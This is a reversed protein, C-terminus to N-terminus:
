ITAETASMGPSHVAERAPRHASKSMWRGLRAATLRWMLGALKDRARARDAHNLAEKPGVIVHRTTGPGTKVRLAAKTWGGIGL